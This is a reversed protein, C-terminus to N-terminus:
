ATTGKKFSSGVPSSRNAPSIAYSAAAPAFEVIQLISHTFHIFEFFYSAENLFRSTPAGASQFTAPVRHLCAQKLAM